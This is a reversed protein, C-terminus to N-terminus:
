SGLDWMAFLLFGAGAVVMSDILYVGWRLKLADESLLWAGTLLALGMHLPLSAVPWKALGTSIATVFAVKPLWRKM